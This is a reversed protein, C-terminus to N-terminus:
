SLHYCKKTNLYERRLTILTLYKQSLKLITLFMLSIITIYKLLYYDDNKLLSSSYLECIKFVQYINISHLIFSQLNFFFDPVAITILLICTYLLASYIFFHILRFNIEAWISLSYFDVEFIFILVFLNTMFSLSYLLTIVVNNRVPFPFSPLSAPLFFSDNRNVSKM